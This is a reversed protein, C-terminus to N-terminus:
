CPKFYQAIIQEILPSHRYFALTFGNPHTIQLIPCDSSEDENKTAATTTPVQVVESVTLGQPGYRVMKARLQYFDVNIAKAVKSPPLTACAEIAMRWLDEPLKGMHKRTARYDAFAKALEELNYTQMPVGREGGFFEHASM